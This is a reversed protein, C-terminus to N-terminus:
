SLNKLTGALAIASLSITISLNTAPNSLRYTYWVYIILMGNVKGLFGLWTEFAVM